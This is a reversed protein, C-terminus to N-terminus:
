AFTAMFLTGVEMESSTTKESAMNLSLATAMLQGLASLKASPIAPTFSAAIPFTVAPM